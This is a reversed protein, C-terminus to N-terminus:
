LDYDIYKYSQPAQIVEPIFPEEFIKLNTIEIAYM